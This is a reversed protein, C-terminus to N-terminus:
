RLIPDTVQKVLEDVSTLTLEDTSTEIGQPDKEPEQKQRLEITESSSDLTQTSAKTENAM